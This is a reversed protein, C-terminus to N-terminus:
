ARKITVSRCLIGTFQPKPLSDLAWGMGPLTVPELKQARQQQTQWLASGGNCHTM